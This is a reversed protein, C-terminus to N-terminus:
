YRGKIYLKRKLNASLGSNSICLTTRDYHTRRQELICFLFLEKFHVAYSHNLHSFTERSLHVPM